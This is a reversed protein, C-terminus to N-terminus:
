RFNNKFDNRQIMRQENNAAQMRENLNQVQGSVSNARLIEQRRDEKDHINYMKKFHDKREDLFQQRGQYDRNVNWRRDFVQSVDQVRKNINM